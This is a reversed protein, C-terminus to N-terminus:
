DDGLISAVRIFLNVIDLYLNAAADIASDITKEGFNARSWDIGIYGCFILAVVWDLWVASRGTVGIVILEVVITVSLVAILTFAMEEFVRPYAVGLAMMMITVGGTVLMASQILGPTYKSLALNLVFGCPVVVLNYGLFSVVPDDSANTMIMGVICCAFYGVLFAWTPVAAVASTPIFRVMLYNLFFGWTLVAGIAVNFQRDSLSDCYNSHNM